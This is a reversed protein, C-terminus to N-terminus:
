SLASQCVGASLSGACGDSNRCLASERLRRARRGDDRLAPERASSLERQWRATWPRGEHAREPAILNRAVDEACRWARHRPGKGRRALTGTLRNRDQASSASGPPDAFGAMRQLSTQQSKGSCRAGSARSHSVVSGSPLKM